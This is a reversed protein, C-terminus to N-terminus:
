ATTLSDYFLRKIEKYSVQGDFDRDLYQIMCVAEEETLPSRLRSMFTLLEKASIFGNGDQDIMQFLERPLDTQQFVTKRKRYWTVFQELVIYGRKESDLEKIMNAVEGETPFQGLARLFPGLQLSKFFFIYTL